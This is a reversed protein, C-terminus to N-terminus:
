RASADSSSVPRENLPPERHSAPEETRRRLLERLGVPSLRRERLGRALRRTLDLAVPGEKGALGEHLLIIEGGRARALIRRALLAPRRVVTDWSRTSWTVMRLNHAALAERLYVNKHGMPPRFWEPSRGTIAGLTEQAEGVERMVRLRGAAAWSAPHTQTHNGLAHGDAVIRRIVEPDAAARRGVVFFSARIGEEGLLDLLARTEDGRPGDDFTLAVSDGARDGHSVGPAYLTGGPRLLTWLFAAHLAAWAGVLAPAGAPVFPAALPLATSAIMFRGVPHM